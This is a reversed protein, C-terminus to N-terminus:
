AGLPHGSHGHSREERKHSALVAPEKLGSVAHFRVRRRGAGRAPKKGLSYFVGMCVALGALRDILHTETLAGGPLLIIKMMLGTAIAYAVCTVWEFIPSDDDMRGAVLVGLWRWSYTCVIAIGLLSAADPM